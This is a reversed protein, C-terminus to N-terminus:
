LLVPKLLQYIEDFDLFPASSSPIAIPQRFEVPVPYKLALTFVITVWKRTPMYTYGNYGVFPQSKIYNVIKDRRRAILEVTELKFTRNCYLHTLLNIENFSRGILPTM